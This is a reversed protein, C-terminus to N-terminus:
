NNNDNVEGRKMTKSAMEMIAKMREFKKRAERERKAQQQEETIPIPEDFYKAQKNGMLKALSVNVGEHIYLGQLWLEENKRALKLEHAKKYAKVLEPRDNWYENYSM